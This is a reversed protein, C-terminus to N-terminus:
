AASDGPWRAKRRARLIVQEPSDKRSKKLGAAAAFNERSMVSSCAGPHADARAAPLSRLSESPYPVPGPLPLSKANGRDTPVMEVRYKQAAHAFPQLGSLRMRASISSVSDSRATTPSAGPSIPMTPRLAPSERRIGNPGALRASQRSPGSGPRSRFPFPVPPGRWGRLWRRPPLLGEHAYIAGGNGCDSISLSNKPCSFPAKVPAIARRSPRNASASPPM